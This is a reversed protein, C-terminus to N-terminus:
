AITEPPEFAAEENPRAYTINNPKEICPEQGNPKPPLPVHTAKFPDKANVEGTQDSIVMAEPKVKDNMHAKVKLSLEKASKGFAAASSNYGNQKTWWKKGEATDENSFKPLVSQVDAFTKRNYELFEEKRTKLLATQTRHMEEDGVMPSEDRSRNESM